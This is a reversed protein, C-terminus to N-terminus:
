SWYVINKIFAHKIFIKNLDKSFSDRKQKDKKIKM